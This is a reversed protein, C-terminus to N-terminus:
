SFVEIEECRDDVPSDPETGNERGKTPEPNREMQENLYFDGKALIQPLGFLLWGKEDQEVVMQAFPDTWRCRHPLVTIRDSDTYGLQRAVCGVALAGTGCALTERNIGREFCRYDLVNSDNHHRVFNINIGSPFIHSYNRNVYNGIHDLLWSGLAIRKEDSKKQTEHQPMLFLTDGIGEISFGSQPFVVMHPEGTFILYGSFELLQKSSIPALDHRRFKVQLKEITSMVENYPTAHGTTVLQSSIPGPNGMNAWCFQNSPHTGISVIRPRGTPLETLIRAKKIDYHEFLHFALCMLGNGCSLAETGDPEFMRFIYDASAPDVQVSSWYGRDRKIAALVKESCEQIVLFNDSGVGYNSNTAYYAFQSKSVESLVPGKIEDIIVFNNGLSTYKLFPIKKMQM